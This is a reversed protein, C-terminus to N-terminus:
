GVRPKRSAALAYELLLLADATALTPRLNPYLRQACAKLKNKWETKSACNSAHGLGLAKQWKQPRVLDVRVGLTQLAGLLFGFNRGFTFARSAPQEHGVYGGVEEVMAVTSAPDAALQRLLEVLDGETPPMPMADAPQGNRRVAIGGSAGPDIAIVTNM